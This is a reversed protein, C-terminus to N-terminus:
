SGGGIKRRGFTPTTPGATPNTPESTSATASTTANGSKANPGAASHTARRERTIRSRIATEVEARPTGYRAASAQLLASCDSEAEPLPLTKGTVPRGVTNHECLRAAVEYAPLHQLDAATLPAFSREVARADEYGLQFLITSRVTSTVARRISDPLQHIFQNAMVLGVGLGRAQALLDAVDLDLKLVDQFEDLYIWFPRRKGAPIASRAYTANVLSAVVLAGLLQATDTGIVGKSLSVLLIKNSRVVGNVDVGVSQGLMLRLASRTSLARLKNLSPGIIQLRQQGSHREFEMWFGRVSEPVSPQATVFRRFIPNTLLEGVETITFARGDMSRTCALTLLSNRLVDATRPGFSERWLESIVHVIQDVVLEREHDSHASGLLNLGVIPQDKTHATPDLVIVDKHRREPLRALIEDCLDAKPDILAFGHGAEADQLAMNAILTSKGTGTPGLLWIHRLRDSTSLRLAQNSGPYTSRAIVMGSRSANPNPPLLRSAGLPLGPVLLGDMPIGGVVAAAERANLLMPRTFVPLTRKTMRRVAILSPVSLRRAIQVGPADAGHLTAATRAVLRRADADNRASAGIALTIVRMLPDRRKVRLASAEDADAPASEVLWWPTGSRDTNQRTSRVPPPTGAGSLHWTIRIEEGHAVHALSGLVVASVAEARDLALPRESTTTLEWAHRPAWAAALYDPAPELRAGPLGVEIASLLATKAYRPILVFHRIGDHNAVLELGLVAPRTVFPGPTRTAAAIMGFCRVVDALRLDAPLQVRFAVLERRWIRAARLRVGFSVGLLCLGVVCAAIVLTM